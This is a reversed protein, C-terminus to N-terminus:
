RSAIEAPVPGTPVLTWWLKGGALVRHEIQVRGRWVLVRVRDYSDEPLDQAERLTTVTTDISCVYDQDNFRIMVHQRDGYRDVTIPDRLELNVRVEPRYGFLENAAVFTYRKGNLVSRMANAIADATDHTLYGDFITRGDM